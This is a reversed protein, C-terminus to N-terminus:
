VGFCCYAERCRKIWDSQRRLRSSLACARARESRTIIRKRRIHISSL